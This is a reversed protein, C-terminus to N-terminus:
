DHGYQHKENKEEESLNGYQEHACQCMKDKEKESLDPYRECAKKKFGKNIKLSKKKKASEFILKVM